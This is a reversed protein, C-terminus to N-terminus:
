KNNKGHHFGLFYAAWAGAGWVLTVITDVTRQQVEGYLKVELGQWLISISGMLIVSLIIAELQQRGNNRM